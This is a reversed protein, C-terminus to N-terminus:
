ETLNEIKPQIQEAYARLEKDQSALMLELLFKLYTNQVHLTSVINVNLHDKFMTKWEEKSMKLGQAEIYEEKQKLKKNALALETEVAQLRAQLVQPDYQM